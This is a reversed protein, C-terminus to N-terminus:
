KEIESIEAELKEIEAELATKKSEDTEDLLLQLTAEHETKLTELQEAKDADKKQAKADRKVTAYKSKTERAHEKARAESYFCYGSDFVYQVVLESNVKFNQDAIKKALANM